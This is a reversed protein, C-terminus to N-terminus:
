ALATAKLSLFAHLNQRGVSSNAHIEFHFKENFIEDGKQKYIELRTKFFTEVDTNLDDIFEKTAGILVYSLQDDPKDSFRIWQYHNDSSFDEQLPSTYIEM